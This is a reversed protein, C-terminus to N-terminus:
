EERKDVNFLVECDCHGGNARFYELTHEVDIGLFTRLIQKSFELSSGGGCDWTTNPMEGRFNCGEPGELRQCFEDWFPHGPTLISPFLKNPM